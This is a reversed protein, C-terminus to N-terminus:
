KNAANQKIREAEQANKCQSMYALMGGAKCKEIVEKREEDHKLFHDVDRTLKAKFKEMTSSPPLKRSPDCIYQKEAQEANKCNPSLKVENLPVNQKGEKQYQLMKEQLEAECQAIKKRREGPHALYYAVDRTTEKEECSALACGMFALTWVSKLM